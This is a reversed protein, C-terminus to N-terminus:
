ATPMAPTATWLPTRGEAPDTEVLLRVNDDFQRTDDANTLMM